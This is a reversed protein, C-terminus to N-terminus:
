ASNRFFENRFKECHRMEKPIGNIIHLNAKYFGYKANGHLADNDVGKLAM